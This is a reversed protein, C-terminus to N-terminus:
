RGAWVAAVAAVLFLILGCYDWVRMRFDTLLQVEGRFGRSQMALYVDNSLALSKSLLVGATRAALHRQQDPPIIGITRSQRSQFMQGATDVLLFVYRYTMALISIVERPLRLARLAKLVYSWPTCLILLSTFTVATEVRLLLLAATRLGQQTISMTGFSAVADGPTVFVAPLAIIGTFGLVILWVRKVLAGLSVYSALAIVVAVAFLAAVVSLKRSLMVALLLAFLGLLRVRPDLSQLLGRQRATNESLMAHAIARSFGLMTSEVLGRRM